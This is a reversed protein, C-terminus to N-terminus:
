NNRFLNKVEHPACSAYQGPVVSHEGLAAAAHWGWRPDYLMARGLAILDAKGEQLATEAHQPTTILGVGIVPIDIEKKIAEAMPLQYGPELPPLQQSAPHLGGGSVHIYACGKVQLAKALVINQPVDWGGEAWDSGSVRIGVAVNEPVAAKVANFVELAFRMRNELSGGYEDTRHNSLPSLFQHILFGHAGHLEILDVGARVARQAAGAFDNVIRQIETKSLEIPIPFTTELPIASPALTRWGHPSDPPFVPDKPGIGSSAKRGAHSLQIGVRVPSHQRIFRLIKVLANETEINWLGLDAYTIRGEPAVATSEIILLGAGSLSLNGLHMLHWDTAVGDNASFMCMPAIVIRNDLRLPGIKITSFLQSM